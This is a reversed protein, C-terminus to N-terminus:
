VVFYGVNVYVSTKLKQSFHSPAMAVTPRRGKIQTERYSYRVTAQFPKNCSMSKLKREINGDKEEYKENYQRGRNRM